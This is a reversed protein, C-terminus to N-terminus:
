VELWARLAATTAKPAELTALHGSGPIVILDANQLGDCIEQHRDIPTLEDDDGCIVATKVRMNSLDGIRNPRSMIAQQQAIFVEPGVTMAMDVLVARLGQDHKHGRSILNPLLRPLVQEFRGQQTLKILDRRMKTQAPADSRATTSMLALREVREPAQCLIEQAVYGGMSLGVLSFRDPATALVHAAMAQVSPQDLKAVCSRAVDSLARVQAEFLREDCLLGPLFILDHVM